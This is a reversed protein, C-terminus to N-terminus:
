GKHKLKNINKTISNQIFIFNYELCTLPLAISLKEKAILDTDTNKISITNYKISPLKFVVVIAKSTKIVATM